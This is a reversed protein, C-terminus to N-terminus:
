PGNQGVVFDDRLLAARAIAITSNRRRGDAVIAAVAGALMMVAVIGLVAFGGQGVAIAGALPGIVMAVAQVAPVLTRARDGQEIAVASFRAVAYTAGVNFAIMAAVYALANAAMLLPAAMALGALAASMVLSLRPTAQAVVLAAVGAAISGLAVGIGVTQSSFGAVVADAGVYSWIMASAAVFLFVALMAPTLQQDTDVDCLIERPAQRDSLLLLGAAVPVAALCLLAAAPGAVRAVAPLLLAAFTAVALQAFLITGMAHAPSPARSQATADRLAAAYIMGAAFGFIARIVLIALLGDAVVTALAALTGIIGALRLAPRRTRAVLLAGAAMGAQSAGVVLGHSAPALGTNDSLLVLFVPDIGPQLLALGAALRLRLYGDSSGPAHVFFRRPHHGSAV